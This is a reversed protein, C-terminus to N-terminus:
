ERIWPKSTLHSEWQYLASRFEQDYFWFIGYYVSGVLTISIAPTFFRHSYSNAVDRGKDFPRVRVDLLMVDFKAYSGVPAIGGRSPNRFIKYNLGYGYGFIRGHEFRDDIGPVLLNDFSDDNWGYEM